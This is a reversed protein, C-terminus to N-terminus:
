AKKRLSEIIKLTLFIFFLFGLVGGIMPLQSKINEIYCDSRKDKSCFVSGCGEGEPSCFNDAEIKDVELSKNKIVSYYINENDMFQECDSIEKIVSKIQFVPGDEKSFVNSMENLKKMNETSPNKKYKNILNRFTENKDKIDANIIKQKNLLRKLQNKDCSM